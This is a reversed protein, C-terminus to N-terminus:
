PAELAVPTEEDPPEGQEAAMPAAVAAITSLESLPAFPDLAPIPATVPAAYPTPTPYAKPARFDSSAPPAAQQKATEEADDLPTLWGVPPNYHYPAQAPHPTRMAPASRETGRLASQGPAAGAMGRGGPNRTASTSPPSPPAETTMGPYALHTPAAPPPFSPLSPASRRAAPQAGLPPVPSPVAQGLPGLTGTPTGLLDALPDDAPYPSAPASEDIDLHFMDIKRLLAVALEVLYDMSARTQDMSDRTQTVNSALRTIAQALQTAANSQENALARMREIERAISQTSTDVAELAAGAAAAYESQLVVQQTTHEIQAVVQSTENQVSQIRAHIQRTAEASSTALNRIEQAVIAFGRGHEGARAAEIAANLALLNTQNTFDAVMQVIAGIEQSSEGLRKVKKAAQLTMERVRSMGEAARIAADRGEHSIESAGQAEADSTDAMEAIRRVDRAMTEITQSVGLMQESQQQAGDALEAAATRMEAASLNVMESAGRVEALVSNLTVLTANLSETIPDLLTNGSFQPRVTLNGQRVQEMQFLLEFLGERLSQREEEREQFIRSTDIALAAVSAFLEIMEVTDLTPVKGDVPQDLSLIGLLREDRPSILPVLLADDPHWADAANPPPTPAPLTIGDISYLLAKNHHSIFYSHSICFEPRLAGLLSELRPPRQTLQDRERPTLGATAVVEVYDSQERVINLAAVNFGLTTNIAEVLQTFISELGMEARLAAGLRVMEKIQRTRREIEHEAEISSGAGRRPTWNTM